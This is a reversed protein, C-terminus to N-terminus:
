DAITLAEMAATLRGWTGWSGEFEIAPAGPDLALMADIRGALSM